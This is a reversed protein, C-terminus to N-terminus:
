TEACPKIVLVPIQSRSVVKNAVSGLVLKNINSHKQSAMVILDAGEKSATTLIEDSPKGEVVLTSYPISEGKLLKEAFEALAESLESKLQAFAGEPFFGSVMPLQFGHQVTLVLLESKMFNCLEIAQKLAKDSFGHESLDVPVLIKKYM